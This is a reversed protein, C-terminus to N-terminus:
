TADRRIKAFYALGSLSIGLLTVTSSPDPTSFGAFEDRLVL